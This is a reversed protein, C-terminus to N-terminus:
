RGALPSSDLADLLAAPSDYIAIAGALDADSRGGCRLAVTRVGIRGAAEIDFPTDGIMIAQGPELELADLAAKVIDPDPKSSGAASSTKDVLLDQINALQLLPELESPEASSAVVHQIGREALRQLLARGRPFARLKPLHESAFIEGRRASIARGLESDADVGAVAPLLKDGGMGIASRVAEFSVDLQHETLASQWARAHADNSDVLTGDVDWILGRLEVARCGRLPWAM